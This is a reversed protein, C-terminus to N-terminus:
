LTRNVLMTLEALQQSKGRPPMILLRYMCLGNSGSGSGTKRTWTRPAPAPAPASAPALAQAPALAPAEEVSRDVAQVQDLQGAKQCLVWVPADRLVGGLAVSNEVVSDRDLRARKPRRARRVGCGRSGGRRAVTDTPTAGVGREPQGPQPPM